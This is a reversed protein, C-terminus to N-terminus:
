REALRAFTKPRCHRAQALAVEISVARRDGSRHDRSSWHVVPRTFEPDGVLRVLQFPSATRPTSSRVCIHLPEAPDAEDPPITGHHVLASVCALPGGFRWALVIDDALDPAGYWGKRLRRLRKLGELMRISEEAIGAALLEHTAVIGAHRDLLTEHTPRRRVRGPLSAPDPLTVFPDAIDDEDFSIGDGAYAAELESERRAAPDHRITVRAIEGIPEAPPLPAHM